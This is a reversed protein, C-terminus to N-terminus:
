ETVSHPNVPLFGVKKLPPDKETVLANAAAWTFETEGADVSTADIIFQRKTQITYESDDTVSALPMDADLSPRDKSKSWPSIIQCPLAETLREVIKRGEPIDPKRTVKESIEQFLVLACYDTTKTGSSSSKDRMNMNDFAGSVFGAEPGTEFHSPIPTINNSSKCKQITYSALLARARRVENYSISVGIKNLCTIVTRSRCRTYVTQGTM